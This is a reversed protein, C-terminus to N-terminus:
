RDVGEFTTSRQRRCRRGNQAEHADTTEIQQAHEILLDQNGGADVLFESRGRRLWGTLDVETCARPEDDGRWHFRRRTSSSRSSRSRPSASAITSAISRPASRNSMSSRRLLRVAWTWPQGDSTQQPHDRLGLARSQNVGRSRHQILQDLCLGRGRKQSRRPLRRMSDRTTRAGMGRRLRARREQPLTSSIPAAQRGARSLRRSNAAAV